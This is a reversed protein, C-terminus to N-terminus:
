KNSIKKIKDLIAIAEIPTIELPNITKIYDRLEDTEEFNLEYQKIIKSGNNNKTEFENLIVM